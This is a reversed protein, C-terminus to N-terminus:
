LKEKKYIDKLKNGGSKKDAILATIIYFVIVLLIAQILIINYQELASRDYLQFTTHMNFLIHSLIACWLSRSIFMTLGFLLGFIGTSLVVNFDFWSNSYGLTHIWGFVFSSLLLSLILFIYKMFVKSYMRSFLLRFIYMFSVISAFRWVEESGTRIDTFIFYKLDAGSIKQLGQPNTESVIGSIIENGFLRVSFSAVIPLLIILAPYALWGYKNQAKLQKNKSFSCAFLVFTFITYVFEVDMGLRSNMLIIIPIAITIFCNWLLTSNSVFPIYLKDWYTIDKDM